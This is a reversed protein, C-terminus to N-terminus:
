GAENAIIEKRGNLFFLLIIMGLLMDRHRMATGASSTGWGFVFTYIIITFNFVQYNRGLSRKNKEFLWFIYMWPVADLFFAFVDFFNTWFRPTPSIWYYVIRYITLFLFDWVSNIESFSVYNSRAFVDTNVNGVIYQIRAM